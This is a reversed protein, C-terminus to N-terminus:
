SWGFTSAFNIPDYVREIHVRFPQTAAQGDAVADKFEIWLNEHGKKAINVIEGITLGSANESAVFQYGVEAEAASGDSGTAGIFLLEHPEFGQFTDSNTKGTARALTRAWAADVVGEAHRFGYTLKLAPIVIQAGEVDGDKTVGISGKHPNAVGPDAPYSNVHEKAAKVTVTGGTTDFSFNYEGTVKNKEGYPVTVSYVNAGMPSVRMPQRYLTGVVTSAILPTASRVYTQVVTDDFEGTSVYELTYTKSGEDFTRSRPTEALSISM